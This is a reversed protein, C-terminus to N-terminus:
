SLLSDRGAANHAINLFLHNLKGAGALAEAGLQQKFIEVPHDRGLIACAQHARIAAAFGRQELHQRAHLREVVALEADRAADAGAVQRLVAKREGAAANEGLAHRNERRQLLHFHLHFLERMLHALQIGGARFVRLHRVAEMVQITFETVAVAVGDFRLHPRNQGAEAERVLLPVLAGLFEGAAPLHADRQGLQQEFLRVQQQQVLRGIMQIEFGAVPQLLVKGVVREGEHQDRM